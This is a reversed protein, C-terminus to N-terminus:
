VGDELTYGSDCDTCATSGASTCKTCNSQTCATMVVDFSDTAIFGASDTATITFTATGVFSPDMEVVIPNGDTSDISLTIYDAATVNTTITFTLSNASTISSSTITTSGQGFYFTQAGVAGSVVPTVGSFIIGITDSAVNAVANEAYVDVKLTNTGGCCHTATVVGPKITMSDSGGPAWAVASGGVTPTFAMKAGQCHTVMAKVNTTDDVSSSYTVPSNASFTFVPLQLKCFNVGDTMTSEARIPFSTSVAPIITNTTQASTGIVMTKNTADATGAKLTHAVIAATDTATIGYCNYATVAFPVSTSKFMIVQSNTLSASEGSNRNGVAVYKAGVLRGLFYTGSLNPSFIKDTISGALSYYVSGQGNSLMASMYFATIHVFTVKISIPVAATVIAHYTSITPYTLAQMTFSYAYFVAAGSIPAVGIWAKTPTASADVDSTMLAAASSMLTTNDTHINKDNSFIAADYYYTGLYGGIITFFKYHAGTTHIVMRIITGVETAYGIYQDAIAGATDIIVVTNVDFTVTALTGQMDLNLLNATNAIKTVDTAILLNKSITGTVGFTLLFFTNTAGANSTGVAIYVNSAEAVRNVIDGAAAGSAYTKTFLAEGYKDVLMVFGEGTSTQIFKSQGGIFIRETSDLEMDMMVVDSDGPGYM